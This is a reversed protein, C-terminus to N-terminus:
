FFGFRGFVPFLAYRYRFHLGFPSWKASALPLSPIFYDSGYKELCEARSKM